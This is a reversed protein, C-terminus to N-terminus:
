ESPPHTRQGEVARILRLLELFMQRNPVRGLPVALLPADDRRDHINLTESKIEMREMEDWRILRGLCRLGAQSVSVCGFHVEQGERYDRLAGPLQIRSIENQIWRALVYFRHYRDDLTVITGDRRVISLLPKVPRNEDTLPRDNQYVVDIDEWRHARLGGRVTLFGLRCVVVRNYWSWWRFGIWWLYGVVVSAAGLCALALGFSV